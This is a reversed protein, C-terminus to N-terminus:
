RKLKNACSAIIAAILEHNITIALVVAILEFLMDLWLWNFQVGIAFIFTLVILPIFTRWKINIKFFKKTQWTRIVWMAFYACVSSIGAIHLGWFPMLAINITTNTVSGALSTWLIGETHKTGLYGTGIFSSLGLFIVGIYLFPVYRYAEQYELGVFLHIFYKTIPMAILVISIIVNTYMGYIKSFYVDRDESKYEVISQEVWASYFMNNFMILIDPFRHAVTYIGNEFTSLYFLICYKDLAKMVWQNVSNPVLMISYKQMPGSYEKIKERDGGWFGISINQVIGLYAIGAINAVIQAVYFGKVGQNFYKMLIYSIVLALVGNIIGSIAFIKHNKLGRTIQQFLPYICNLDLLIAILVKYQMNVNAMVGLM